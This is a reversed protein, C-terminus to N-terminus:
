PTCPAISRITSASPPLPLLGDNQTQHLLVRSYYRASHMMKVKVGHDMRPVLGAGQRHSDRQTEGFDRHLVSYYAEAEVWARCDECYISAINRGARLRSWVHAIIVYKRPCYPLLASDKMPRVLIDWASLPSGAVWVRAGM